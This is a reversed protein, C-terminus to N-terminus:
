GVVTARFLCPGHRHEGPEPNGGPKTPRLGPLRLQNNCIESRKSAIVFRACALDTVILDVHAVLLYRGFEPILGESLLQQRSPTFRPRVPWLDCVFYEYSNELIGSEIGILGLCCM